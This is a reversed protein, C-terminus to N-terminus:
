RKLSPCNKALFAAAKRTLWEPAPPMYDPNSPSPNSPAELWQRLVKAADTRGHAEAIKLAVPAIKTNAGNDRLAKIAEANGASAAWCLPLDNFAHVDAGAAVLRDIDRGTGSVSARYLEVNLTAPAPQLFDQMIHEKLAIHESTIVRVNAPMGSLFFLITHNVRTRPRRPFGWLPGMETFFDAPLFPQTNGSRPNKVPM